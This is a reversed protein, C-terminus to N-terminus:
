KWYNIYYNKTFQNLENAVKLIYLNQSKLKEPKGIQLLKDIFHDMATLSFGRVQYEKFREETIFQDLEELTHCVPTNENHMPKGVKQTYTICRSVGIEGIAELRDADRPILMWKEPADSDGNVSCSVLSIMDIILNVDENSYDKLVFRANEYDSNDPFLKHDDLDHLLGALIILEKTKDSLDEYKVAEICHKEVALFHELNHAKDFKIENDHYFKLLEKRTTVFNTSM